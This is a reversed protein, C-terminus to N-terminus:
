SKYEEMSEWYAVGLNVNVGELKWASPSPTEVVGRQDETTSDHRYTYDDILRIESAIHRFDVFDLKGIRTHDTFLANIGASKMVEVSVYGDQNAIDELKASSVLNSEKIESIKGKLEDEDLHLLVIDEMQRFRQTQGQGRTYLDSDIACGQAVDDGIQVDVDRYFKTARHIHYTEQEDEGIPSANQSKMEENM